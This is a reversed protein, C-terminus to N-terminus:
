EESMRCYEDILGPLADGLAASRNSAKALADKLFDILSPQVDPYKRQVSLPVGDIISSIEMAIKSLAFTCFGVDVLRRETAKNKLEQSDAQARTLRYREYDITGPQLDSESAARLDEVEKRLKENEISADREAFWRIAAASDFRVEVGKGGGSLTPLGQSQWATITRVDVGFVDALGKKNIQMPNWGLFCLFSRLLEYDLLIRNRLDKRKGKFILSFCDIVTLFFPDVKVM